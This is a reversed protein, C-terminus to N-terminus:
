NTLAVEVRFEQLICSLRVRTGNAEGPISAAQACFEERSYPPATHSLELQTGAEQWREVITRYLRLAKTPDDFTVTAMIFTATTSGADHAVTFRLLEFPIGLRKGLGTGSVYVHCTLYRDKSTPHRCLRQSWDAPMEYLAGVEALSMGVYLGMFSPHGDMVGPPRTAVM